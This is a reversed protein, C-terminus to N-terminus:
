APPVTRARVAAYHGQFDDVLRNGLMRVDGDSDGRSQDRLARRVREWSPRIRKGEPSLGGNRIALTLSSCGGARRELLRRWLAPTGARSQANLLM